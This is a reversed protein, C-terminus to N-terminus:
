EFIDLVSKVKQKQEKKVKRKRELVDDPKLVGRKILRHKIVAITTPTTGLLRALESNNIIGHEKIYYLVLETITVSRKM